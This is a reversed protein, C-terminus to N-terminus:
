KIYEKITNELKEIYGDQHEIKDLADTYDKVLTEKEKEVTNKLSEIEKRLAKIMEQQERLQKDKENEIEQQVEVVENKNCISAVVQNAINGAVNLGVQIAMRKYNLGKAITGVASVMGMKKM